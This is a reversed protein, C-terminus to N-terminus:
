QCDLNQPFPIHYLLISSLKSEAGWFDIFIALIKSFTNLLQLFAPRHQRFNMTFTAMCNSRRLLSSYNFNGLIQTNLLCYMIYDWFEVDTTLGVLLLSPVDQNTCHRQPLQEIELLSL